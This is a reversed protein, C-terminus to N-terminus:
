RPNQQEELKQFYFSISLVLREKEDDLNIDAIKCIRDLRYFLTSRHIFLRKSTQLVNRELELFTKLTTYLETHNAKDYQKLITLKQPCLLQPPLSEEAKRYLFDLFYDDFRYCWSMSSSQLGLSLATVAQYYGQPILLFDRIESSAGMKLLGERLLLALSSLIDPISISSYTLNVIVSIGDQYVFACSDPIQSEIYGLAGASSMMRLDQNRSSLRLCLYSDFRNWNLRRMMNLISSTDEITGSLYDRFFQETSGTLNFQMLRHNKLSRVILKALHGIALYQGPLIPTELEDVCIRGEYRDGQWINMYLIPYGRQEPPYLSPETTTLTHLYAAEVKFDNIVSLPIIDNGTRPDKEWVLMGPARHSYSLINFSYDHVFIPNNFIDRSAQLMADLPADDDLAEHLRLNWSRYKEFIDQAQALLQLPDSEDKVFLAYCFGPFAAIDAKGAVVFCFGRLQEPLLLLDEAKIIYLYRQFLKQGICFLRVDELFAADNPAHLSIDSFVESFADRLINMNLKFPIM